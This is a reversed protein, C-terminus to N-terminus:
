LCKEVIKMVHEENFIVPNSSATTDLVASEGIEILQTQTLSIMKKQKTVLNSFLNKLEEVGSVGAKSCLTQYKQAIENDSSNFDLVAPMFLGNALGHGIKYRGMQHAISHSLGAMCHNQVWGALMAAYQLESITDLDWVSSHYESSHRFIIEVVKEAFIDMLPHNIKSVYGEVAHSLADAVTTKLIPLPVESVLEPDLIVLDPLFDHTVVAQKRMNKGDFFVAASSVESGSGITTPIAAFKAKGRLPPLSFPRFLNEERTTPHEYLLWALKAGDIVSGGGLAIIYDPKFEELESSLGSLSTLSPEGDWSKEIFRHSEANILRSIQEFYISKKFSQSIIIAARNCVIAKLAFRANKGNVIEKASRFIPIPIGLKLM